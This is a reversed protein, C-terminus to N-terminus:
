FPPATQISGIPTWAEDGQKMEYVDGGKKPNSPDLWSCTLTNGNNLTVFSYGKDDPKPWDVNRKFDHFPFTPKSSEGHPFNAASAGGQQPSDGSNETTESLIKAIQSAVINTEIRKIEDKDTYSNKQLRGKAMIRDGEVFSSAMDALEGFCVVTHFTTQDKKGNWGKKVTAMPINAISIGSGGSAM